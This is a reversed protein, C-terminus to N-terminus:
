KGDCWQLFREVSVSALGTQSRGGPMYPRSRDYGPRGSGWGEYYMYLTHGHEFVEGYWIGAEDWTGAKGRMFFPKPNDVKTWKLLDDSWAVHFRDPYDIFRSSCQYVMYWRNELRFIRGGHVSRSDFSGQPGVDLALRRPAAAFDALNGVVALYTRLRDTLRGLQPDFKADGYFVYYKNRHFVVDCPGIYRQMPNIPFKTFSKGGDTSYAGALCEGDRYSVGKYLMVLVDGGNKKKGWVPACDLLNKGDYGDKHGHVIVPNGPCPKWPGSPSFGEAHQVFLGISDHFNEEPTGGEAPFYGSGRLYLRWLGDPSEEPSLIAANAVHVARWPHEPSVPIVPRDLSREMLTESAPVRAVSVGLCCAVWVAGRGRILSDRGLKKVAM